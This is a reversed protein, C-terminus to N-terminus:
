YPVSSRKSLVSSCVCLVDLIIWSFLVPFQPVHLKLEWQHMKVCSFWSSQHYLLVNETSQSENFIIEHAHKEYTNRSKHHNGYENYRLM